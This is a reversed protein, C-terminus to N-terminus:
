SRRWRRPSRLVLPHRRPRCRGSRHTSLSAQDPSGRSRASRRLQQRDRTRCQRRRGRPAGHRPRISRSFDHVPDGVDNGRFDARDQLAFGRFIKPDFAGFAPLEHEVLIELVVQEDHGAGAIVHANRDIRPQVGEVVIAFPRGDRCGLHREIRQAEPVHLAVRVAKLFIAGFGACGIGHAQRATAQFAHFDDAGHLIELEHAPRKPHRGALRDDGAHHRRDFLAAGKMM